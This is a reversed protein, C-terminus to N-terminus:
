RHVHHGESRRRRSMIVAIAALVGAVVILMIGAPFSSGNAVATQASKPIYWTFGGPDTRSAKFVIETDWYNTVVGDRNACAIGADWESISESGTFLYKASLRTWTYSEPLGVVQGSGPATNLAGVYQGDSFFGLRGDTGFGEPVGTKFSVDTPSVAKPFMFTFVHFQKHETDGSCSADAPLWVGYLTTSGGSDLPVAQAPKTIVASGVTVSAGAAASTAIPLLSATVVV